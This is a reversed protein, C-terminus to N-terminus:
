ELTVLRVSKMFAGPCAAILAISLNSHFAGPGVHKMQFVEVRDPPSDGCPHLQDRRTVSTPFYEPLSPRPPLRSVAM